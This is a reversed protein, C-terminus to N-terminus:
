AARRAVLALRETWARAAEAPAVGRLAEAFLWRDRPEAFGRYMHPTGYGAAVLAEWVAPAHRARCTGCLSHGIVPDPVATCGRQCPFGSTCSCAFCSDPTPEREAPPKWLLPRYVPAAPWRRECGRCKHYHGWGSRGPGQCSTTSNSRRGCSPCDELVAVDEYRLWEADIWTVEVAFPDNPIADDVRWAYPSGAPQRSARAWTCRTDLATIRADPRLRLGCERRHYANTVSLATRHDLHGLALLFEGAEGLPTVPIGYMDSFGDNSTLIFPEVTTM